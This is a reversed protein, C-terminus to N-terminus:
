KIGLKQNMRKQLYSLNPSPIKSEEKVQEVPQKPKEILDKKKPDAPKVPIPKEKPPKTSVGRGHYVRCRDSCFVGKPNKPQFEKGCHRCKKM